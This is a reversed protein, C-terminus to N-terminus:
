AHAFLPELLHPCRGEDHRAVVVDMRAAHSLLHMPENRVHVPGLDTRMGLLRVCVDAPDQLKEGLDLPVGLIPGDSTQQPPAQTPFGMPTRLITPPTLVGHGAPLPTHLSTP